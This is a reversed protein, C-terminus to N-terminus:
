NVKGGLFPAPNIPVGNKRIEFHLHPGSSNGTSGVKGIRQGKNVKGLGVDIKSMHGYVIELGNGADVIVCNGYGGSTGSLTVIGDTSSYIPTGTNAGLDIGSHSRGGRIALGTTGFSDTQTWTGDKLPFNMTGGPIIASEGQGGQFAGNREKLGTFLLTSTNTSLTYIAEGNTIVDKSEKEAEKEIAEALEAYDSDESDSFPPYANVYPANPNLGFMKKCLKHAPLQQLTVKVENGNVSVEAGSRDYFTWNDVKSELDKEYNIKGKDEGFWYTKVPKGNIDTYRKSFILDSITEKENDKKFTWASNALSISYASLIEMDHSTIIAGYSMGSGSNIKIGTFQIYNTGSGKIHVLLVLEDDVIDCSEVEGYKVQYSGCYDGNTENYIDIYNNGSYEGGKVDCHVAFVFGGHAGIDQYHSGHYPESFSTLKTTRTQDYVTITGGKRFIYNGTTRDLAAGTTATPLTVSGQNSITNGDTKFSVASDESGNMHGAVLVTGDTTATSGNAHYINGSAMSKVKGRKDCLFVEGNVGTEPGTTMAVAFHTGTYAFSQAVCYAGDRPISARKGTGRGITELITESTKKTFQPAGAAGGEPIEMTGGGKGFYRVVENYGVGGDIRISENWSDSGKVGNDPSGAHAVKGGGIYLMAHHGNLLVDGKQLKGFSIYGMNKWNSDGSWGDGYYTGYGDCNKCRKLMKPDGGGHAYAAHVFPNCCYTKEWDGGGHKKSSPQSGCFYCGNHHAWSAEGYHFENNNAIAEAWACAGNIVDERSHSIGGAGASGGGKKRIVFFYECDSPKPDGGYEEICSFQNLSRHGECTKGNGLYIFTHGYSESFTLVDGRQLSSENGDFDFVEFDLGKLKGEIDKKAADHNKYPLLSGIPTGLAESLILGTSHCCCAYKYPSWDSHYKDRAATMADTGRAGSDYDRESDPTGEPYAMREATQAIIEGGSSGSGLNNLEEYPTGYGDIDDCIFTPDTDSDCEFTVTKDPYLRRYYEEAKQRDQYRAEEIITALKLTQDLSNARTAVSSAEEGTEPQVNEEANKPTLFNTADMSSSSTGGTISAFLIIVAIVIGIVLKAQWPLIKAAARGAKVAARGTKRVATEAARAGQNYNQNSDAM